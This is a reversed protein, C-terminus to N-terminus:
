ASRTYVQVTWGAHRYIMGEDIEDYQLPELVVSGFVEGSASSSRTNHLATYIGQVYSDLASYPQDKAIVRVTYQPKGMIYTAGTGLVLRGVGSLYEFRIYPCAVSAPAVGEVITLGALAPTAALQTYIHGAAAALDLGAM